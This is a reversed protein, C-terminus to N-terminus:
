FPSVSVISHQKRLPWTTFLTDRSYASSGTSSVAKVRVVYMTNYKLESLMM